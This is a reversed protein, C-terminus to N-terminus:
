ISAEHCRTFFAFIGCAAPGIASDPDMWEQARALRVWFRPALPDNKRLHPHRDKVTATEGEEAKAQAKKEVRHVVM